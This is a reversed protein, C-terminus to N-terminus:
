EKVKATFRIFRDKQDIREIQHITYDQSRYSLLWDKTITERQTSWRIYFDLAGILVVAEAETARRQSFSDVKAWTTILSTYTTEKGGEDNLSSTPQKFVVRHRLEGSTIAVAM